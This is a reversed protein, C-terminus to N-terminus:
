NLSEGYILFFRLCNAIFLRQDNVVTFYGSPRVVIEFAFTSLVFSMFLNCSGEEEHKTVTQAHM